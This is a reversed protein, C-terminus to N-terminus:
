SFLRAGLAKIHAAGLEKAFVMPLEAIPTKARRALEALYQENLLRRERSLV